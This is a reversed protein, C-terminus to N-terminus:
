RSNRRCIQCRTVVFDEIPIANFNWGTWGLHLHIPERDKITLHALWENPQEEAVAMDILGNAAFVEGPTPHELWWQEYWEKAVQAALDAMMTIAELDPILIDAKVTDSASLSTHLKMLLISYIDLFSLLSPMGGARLQAIEDTGKAPFEV